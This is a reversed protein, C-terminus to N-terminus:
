EYVSGNITLKFSTEQINCYVELTKSFYGTEDPTMEIRVNATKGPEIPRRDWDVNACGCSTSVHFIILPYSGTNTVTFVAPNSSDKQITGYNHVSKDVEITTLITQEIDQGGIQSKYLDWIKRNLVPNGIMLVKNDRDLLFCQYQMAQPFHNLRNVTGNVDMFVPYDFQNRAFLFVMENVSKPQFFLLFGVKGRFLSDAEEMLQKWEFLKLRCDSCGASDVYMLIKFEKNFFDNCFGLPAEKGSVYCPISEIFLIEKGTWENVMKAIENQKRNDECSCLSCVAILLFWFLQKQPIVM